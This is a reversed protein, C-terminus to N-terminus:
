CPLLDRSCDHEWSQCSAEGPEDRHDALCMQLKQGGPPVGKCFKQVDTACLNQFHFNLRIDSAGERLQRLVEKKCKIETMDEFAEHYQLCAIGCESIM